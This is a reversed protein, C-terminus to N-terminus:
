EQTDYNNWNLDKLNGLFPIAGYRGNLYGNRIDKTIHENFDNLSYLDTAGHKDKEAFWIEDRRFFEQDLLNSEHTTFILQGRTEEELSFKRILEKILLPHISREVEDIIYVAQNRKISEFAPIFDLLRNTGDSEEDLEFQAKTNNKGTHEIKLSYVMVNEDEKALIIENQNSNVLSIIGTKSREVRKVLDSVEEPDNEGFFESIEKKESFLSTIGINFSCMTDKAYRSFDSDHDIRLPLSSPKSDPTIVNLSESFWKYAKKTELLFKNKKDALTKLIPENHKVFEEIIIDKLLISKEDNEFDDSFQITTIKENNTKREFILIDDKKGMGSIYLEETLITGSLVELAYYFFTNDQFFEAALVQSQSDKNFKFQYDNLKYADEPTVVVRQLAALSRILNSKGAGNAGYISAIKLLKFDNFSYKHRSLTGLRNNPISNFEKFNDFSFLNKVVFRILM